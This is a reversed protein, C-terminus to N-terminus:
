CHISSTLLCEAGSESTGKTRNNNHSSKAKGGILFLNWIRFNQFKPTRLRGALSIAQFTACVFTLKRNHNHTHAKGERKAELETKLSITVVLRLEDHHYNMCHNTVDFDIVINIHTKIKKIKSRQLQQLECIRTELIYM